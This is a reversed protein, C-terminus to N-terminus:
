RPGEELVDGLPGALRLLRAIAQVEGLIMQWFTKRGFEEVQYSDAVGALDAATEVAARLGGLSDVLGAALAQAGTFMRGDALALVTECDLGRGAAVADVFQGYIDEIISGFIEREEDTMPRVSSGMDKFRGSTFVEYSIGLKRYLEEYNVTVWIVGISGTLTGPDAVIHDSASAVWYAGSTAMDAMSAVVIRGSERLAAVEGAIEQAAPATGGPSNIRLVVARVAPNTRLGALTEVIDDAGAITEFLASETGLGTVLTGEIRVVAVVPVRAAVSAGPLVPQFLEVLAALLILGMVVVVAARKARM